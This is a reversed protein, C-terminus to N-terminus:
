TKALALTIVESNSFNFFMLHSSINTNSNSTSNNVNLNFAGTNSTNNWNSSFIPLYDTYLNTYDKKEGIRYM